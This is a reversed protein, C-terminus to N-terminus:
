DNLIIVCSYIDNWYILKNVSFLQVEALDYPDDDFHVKVTDTRGGGFKIEVDMLEKM